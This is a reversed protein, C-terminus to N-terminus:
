PSLLDGVKLAQGKKSCLVDSWVDVDLVELVEVQANLVSIGGAILHGDVGSLGNLGALDADLAGGDSRVLFSHALEVQLL